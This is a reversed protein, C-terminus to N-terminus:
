KRVWKGDMKSGVRIIMEKEVLSKTARKVSAVSLGSASSIDDLKTAVGECIVQYVKKERDTLDAIESINKSAVKKEPARRFTITIGDTGVNFEPYSIGMEECERRMMGIGSGWREIYEMEYFVNAILPNAPQSKHSGMLEKETWGEPLSGPNFIEVRDPYVKISTDMNSSYDRHATANMVAERLAKEPYPYKTFRQLGKIDYEGQVYKNL